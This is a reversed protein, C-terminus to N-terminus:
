YNFTKASSVPNSNISGSIIVTLTSGINIDPTCVGGTTCTGLYLDYDVAANVIAAPNVDGAIGKELGNSDYIVEYGLADTDTQGFTSLINFISLTVKSVSSRSILNFDMDAVLLQWTGIGDPNRQWYWDHGSHNPYTFQDIIDVLGKKLYVTDGDNNLSFNQTFSLTSGADITGGIDQCQNLLDCISWGTLDIVVSTNNFLEIKEDGSSPAPAIHNLVVSPLVVIDSSHTAEINGAVDTSNFDIPNEGVQIDTLGPSDYLGSGIDHPDFGSVGTEGVRTDLTSVFIDDVFAWSALPNGPVDKNGVGFLLNITHGAYALLSHSINQWGSDYDPVFLENGTLIINEFLNGTWSIIKVFFHDYDATDQSFFRYSFSLNSSLNSPLSLTQFVSDTTADVLPSQSFGIQLMSIGSPPLIPNASFDTAETVVKHDGSASSDITWSALGLEFDGNKLLNQGNWRNDPL